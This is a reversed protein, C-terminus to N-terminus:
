TFFRFPRPPGPFWVGVGVGRNRCVSVRPETGAIISPLSPSFTDPPLPVLHSSIPAQFLNPSFTALPHFTTLNQFISPFLQVALRITLFCSLANVIVSPSYFGFVVCSPLSPDSVITCFRRPLIISPLGSFCSAEFMSNELTPEVSPPGPFFKVLM